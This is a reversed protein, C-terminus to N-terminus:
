DLGVIPEASANSTITKTFQTTSGDQEKVTLTAGSISFDARLSTTELWEVGSVLSDYVNAPVVMFDQWVPLAGSVYCHARLTGLTGTDTTNLVCTYYGLSTGTSTLATAENKAAFAAGGKSLVVDTAAITLATEPTVGDTSDVFPGLRFTYATSQKLWQAM